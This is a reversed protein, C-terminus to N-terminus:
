LVRKILETLEILRLWRGMFSILLSFHKVQRLRTIVGIIYCLQSLLLRLDSLSLPYRQFWIPLSNREDFNATIFIILFFNILIISLFENLLLDLFIWLGLSKVILKLLNYFGCIFSLEVCKLGGFISRKTLSKIWNKNSSFIRRLLNVFFNFRWKSRMFLRDLCQIFSVRRTDHASVLNYTLGRTDFHRISFHHVNLKCRATINLHVHKVM